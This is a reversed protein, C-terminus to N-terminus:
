AKKYLKCNAVVKIDVVEAIKAFVVTPITVGHDALKVKFDTNFAFAAGNNALKGAVKYEKKVGHVNLVGVITVDYNGVKSLDDNSIIKGNFDSIPFKDSEIYNENFHEQMLKEKFQFSTNQIKFLIQKTKINIVTGAVNTIGEINQIPTKSFFSVKTTSTTFVDQSYMSTACSLVVAFFLFKPKM